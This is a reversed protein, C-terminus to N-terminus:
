RHNIIAKAEELARQTSGFILDDALFIHEEGIIDLLGADELPEFVEEQIGCFLIKIDRKRASQILQDLAMIATSALLHARRFRLILVKVPTDLIEQIQSQLDEVAAFYLDGEINLIVIQADREKITKMPLEIFKGDQDELIYSLNIHSSEGLYILLTTLIGLYIAYELPLLLASVFTIVM